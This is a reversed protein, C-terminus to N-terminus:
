IMIGCTFLFSGSRAAIVLATKDPDSISAFANFPAEILYLVLLALFLLLLFM